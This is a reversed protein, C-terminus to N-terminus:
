GHLWCAVVAGESAVAHPRELCRDHARTCRPRFACGDPINDLRPMNGPIQTLQDNRSGIRPICGLLQQTYPHRPARLMRAVPGIEVIRGAYMVAVRDALQAIVGLDHTILLMSMRREATLRRLLGLIQAQISMDLATTPEDAIVFRPEAALALAIVVRQRMGGSFQHPYEDIRSEPRAIGVERLLAIARHRAAESSVPLHARITDELQKGVSFLPHLSTQPDQFVSGIRRGRLQRLQENRLNDIRDGDLSIRGGAIAAPPELLGVLASGTMSKGAGSEGVLGLVEGSQIEFSVEAVPRLARSRTPIEVTLQEVQLAM